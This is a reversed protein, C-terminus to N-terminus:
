TLDKIIQSLRYNILMQEKNSAQKKLTWTITSGDRYQIHDISHTIWMKNTPLHIVYSALDIIHSNPSPAIASRPIILYEGTPTLTETYTEALQPENTELLKQSNKYLPTLNCIRM